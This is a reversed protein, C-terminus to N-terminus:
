CFTMSVGVVEHSNLLGQWLDIWRQATGGLLCEMDHDNEQRWELALVILASVFSM